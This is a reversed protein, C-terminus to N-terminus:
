RPAPTASVPGLTRNWADNCGAGCRQLWRPLVSTALIERRRQSDAPTARVEAMRGKRGGVCAQAGINCALGEGTEHDSEQWIDHELRALERNLLQRLDAPLAMWASRNAGFISLGWTVPMTHIHTTVEHLGITNGSMSGTIACDLGGSRMQQVVEAFPTTLPTGGLAEVWDAQTPSSTRVKRGSLDALSSLPRNCFVMQAPYIYVALLEIGHRERLRETLLPRFASLHRRLSSVDPNLGALDVAGILPDQGMTQSVLVTGFSVVGLQMLRLVDPGRIGARDFPVIDARLRGGSLRPLAQTWFPEEHRLYQNVGALGGVVRLATPETQAALPPACLTLLAALMAALWGARPRRLRRDVQRWIGPQM